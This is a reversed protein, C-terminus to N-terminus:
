IDTNNEVKVTNCKQHVSFVFHNLDLQVEKDFDSENKIEKCLLIFSFCHQSLWKSEACTFNLDCVGAHLYLFVGRCFTYVDGCWGLWVCM